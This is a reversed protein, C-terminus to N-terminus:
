APPILEILAADTPESAIRIDSAGGQVLPEAVQASLCFHAPKKLGAEDLGTGRMADVYAEASRRSFHLVGDVGGDGGRRRGASLGRRRRRSLDIATDVAFGRTCLNGALDGSREDGALYLLSAKPKIRGAVLQALDDVDGDASTVDTFGAARM